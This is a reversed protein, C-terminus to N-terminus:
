LWAVHTNCSEYAGNSKFYDRSAWFENYDGTARDMNARMLDDRVTKNSFARKEPDGSHIFEYLVDIDEGM